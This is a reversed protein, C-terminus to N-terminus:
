PTWWNRCKKEASPNRRKRCGMCVVSGRNHFLITWKPVWNTRKPGIEIKEAGVEVKEAGVEVKEAGVEVKEAGWKL